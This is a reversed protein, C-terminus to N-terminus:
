QKIDIVLRGPNELTFIDVNVQNRLEMEFALSDDGFYLFKVKDVYKSSGFTENGQPMLETEFFDVYIKKEQESIHGYIRPPASTTFDFVVREYGREASFSHRIAKLRSKGQIGGNHFIGSGLYISKKQSTLKRLRQAHLDQAFATSLFVLLLLLLIQKM